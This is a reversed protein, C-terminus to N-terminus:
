NSRCRGDNCAKRWWGAWMGYGGEGRCAHLREWGFLLQSEDMCWRRIRGLWARRKVVMSQNIFSTSRKLPHQVHCPSQLHVAANKPLLYNTVYMLQRAFSSNVFLSPHVEESTRRTGSINEFGSSPEFMWVVVTRDRGRHKKMVRAIESVRGSSIDRSILLLSWVSIENRRSEWKPHGVLSHTSRPSRWTQYLNFIKTVNLFSERLRKMERARKMLTFRLIRLIETKNKDYRWHKSVNLLSSHSHIYNRPICPPM